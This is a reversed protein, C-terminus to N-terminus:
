NKQRYLNFFINSEIIMMNFKGSGEGGYTDCAVKYAKDYAITDEKDQNLDAYCSAIQMLLSWKYEAPFDKNQEAVKLVETAVTLSGEIDSRMCLVASLRYGVEAYTDWDQAPKNKLVDYSKRYYLESLRKQYTFDYAKGRMFDAYVASIGGAHELSDALFLARQQDKARIALDFEKKAADTKVDGKNDTCAVITLLLFIIILNSKM